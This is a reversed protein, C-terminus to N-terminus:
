QNYVTYECAYQWHRRLGARAGTRRARVPAQADRVLRERYREIADDPQMRGPGYVYQRLANMARKQEGRPLSQVYTYVRQNFKPQPQVSVPKTVGDFGTGPDGTFDEGAIRNLVGFTDGTDVGFPKSAISPRSPAAVCTVHAM